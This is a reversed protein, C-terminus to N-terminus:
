HETTGFQSLVHRLWSILKKFVTWILVAFGIHSLIVVIYSLTYLFMNTPDFPVLFTFFNSLTYLVLFISTSAWKIYKGKPKFFTIFRYFLFTSFFISSLFIYIVPFDLRFM